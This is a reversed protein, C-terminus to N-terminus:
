CQPQYGAATFVNTRAHAFCRNGHLRRMHHCVEIWEVCPTASLDLGGHEQLMDLQDTFGNMLAALVPQHMHASGEQLQDNSLVRSLQM